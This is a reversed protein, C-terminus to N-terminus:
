AGATDSVLPDGGTERLRVSDSRFLVGGGSQCIGAERLFPPQTAPYTAEIFQMARTGIGHNQYPPAIAIVDLHFHGEGRDLVVIVGVLEGDALIKFCKHQQITQAMQAVSDYGPPGGPEIGPYLVADHEFAAIQVAVLAAADDPTAQEFSMQM